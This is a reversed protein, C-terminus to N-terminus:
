KKVLELFQIANLPESFLKQSFSGLGAEKVLSLIKTESRHYVRWDFLVELYDINPNTDSVIGIALKAGPSMWSAVHRLMHVFLKDDLYNFLGSAWILDYTTDPKFRFVNQNVFRVSSGLHGLLGSAYEIAHRDVEVCDFQMSEPHHVQLFEKTPRCSGSLLNLVKFNSATKSYNPISKELLKQFYAKRNRVAVFTPLSHFHRDWAAWHESHSCYQTYIKDILEFDGPYVRPRAIAHGHMTHVPFALNAQKQLRGLDTKSLKGQEKERYIEAILKMFENVVEGEFTSTYIFEKLRPIFSDVPESAM